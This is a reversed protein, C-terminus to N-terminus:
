SAYERDRIAQQQKALALTIDIAVQAADRSPMVVSGISICNDGVPHVILSLDLPPKFETSTM